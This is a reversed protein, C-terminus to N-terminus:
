EAQLPVIRGRHVPICTPVSTNLFSLLTNLTYVTIQLAQTM